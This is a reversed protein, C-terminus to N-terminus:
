QVSFKGGSIEIVAGSIYSARSSALFALPYAVEEVTGARCLAIPALVEDGREEITRVNMDTAILGPAYANVRINWPALEAALTRTLNLISAKAASYAGFPIAPIFAAFSSANLIVGGNGSDMMRKAAYQSCLFISKVNTTFTRDWHEESQEMLHAPEHIAANNILIDISGFCKEAHSFLDRVGSAHSVDAAIGDVDASIKRLEDIAAYLRENNVGNVIVRAGEQLFVKATAFGIGRTSGTIIVNKKNLHLDM